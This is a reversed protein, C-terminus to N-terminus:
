WVSPVILLPHLQLHEDLSDIFCLWGKDDDEEDAEGGEEEVISRGMEHSTVVASVMM